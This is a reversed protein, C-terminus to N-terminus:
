LSLPQAEPPTGSAAASRLDSAETCAAAKGDERKVPRDTMSAVLPTGGGLRLLRYRAGRARHPASSHAGAVRFLLRRAAQAFQRQPPAYPRRVRGATRHGAGRRVV